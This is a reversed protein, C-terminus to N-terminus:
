LSPKLLKKFMEVMCGVVISNGALKYLQSDSILRKHDIITSTITDIDADTVGMLRFCERPTLKRIRFRMGIYKKDLGLKEAIEPTIIKGKATNTNLETEIILPRHGGGRGGNM